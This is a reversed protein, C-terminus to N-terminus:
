WAHYAVSLRKSLLRRLERGMGGGFDLPHSHTLFDCRKVSLFGLVWGVVRVVAALILESSSDLLSTDVVILQLVGGLRGSRSFVDALHIGHSSQGRGNCHKHALSSSSSPATSGFPSLSFPFFIIGDFADTTRGEDFLHQLGFERFVERERLQLTIISRAVRKIM